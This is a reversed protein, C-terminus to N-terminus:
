DGEAETETERGGAFADVAAQAVQQDQEVAGGSVGVAGVVTGDVELPIGGGFVVIRGDNTTNLGYLSGGPQSPEALDSTPMQLSAATYAKDIAIDISALWADDMREFAVLNGERNVVAINMPVNVDRARQKAAEVLQRATSLGITRVTRTHSSTMPILPEAAADTSLLASLGAVGSARLVTRRTPAGLTPRTTGAGDPQDQTDSM